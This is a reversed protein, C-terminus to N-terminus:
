YGWPNETNVKYDDPKKSGPVPSYDQAEWVAEVNDKTLLHYEFIVTKPPQYVGALTKVALKALLRGRDRINRSMSAKYPDNEDLLKVVSDEFLDYGGIIIDDRGMMKAANAMGSAPSSWTAFGAKIEPHATLMGQFAQVAEEDFNAPQEAAIYMNSAAEVGLKFGITRERCFWLYAKMPCIGVAIQKDGYKKKLQQSMWMALEYGAERYNGCTASVYGAGSIQAGEEIIVPIGAQNVKQIGPVVGINDVPLIAILDPKQQIMNELDSLQKEIELNAELTSFEIGYKDLIERWGARVWKNMMTASLHESMMVKLPSGKKKAREMVAAEEEPLIKLDKEMTAQLFTYCNKEAKPVHLLATDAWALSIWSLVIAISLLIMTERAKKM